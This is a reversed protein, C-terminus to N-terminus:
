LRRSYPFLDTFIEFSINDFRKLIQSYKNVSLSLLKREAQIALGILAYIPYWPNPECFYISKKSVRIAERIAQFPNNVHHIYGLGIVCDFSNDEFDLKEGDMKLIKVENNVCKSTEQIQRASIDISILDGKKTLLPTYKGCGLELIKGSIEFHSLVDNLWTINRNSSWYKKYVKKEAKNRKESSTIKEM